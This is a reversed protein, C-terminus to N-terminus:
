PHPGVRPHSSEPRDPPYAEALARALATVQEETLPAGWGVMKKVTASWQAPTLRQQTMYDTSHCIQCPGMILDRAM